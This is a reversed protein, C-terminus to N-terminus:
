KLELYYKQKLFDFFKQETSKSFDGVLMWKGNVNEFLYFSSEKSEITGDPQKEGIEFLYLALWKNNKEDYLINVTQRRLNVLDTHSYYEVGLSIDKGKLVCAQKIVGISEFSAYDPLEPESVTQSFALSSSLLIVAFISVRVLLNALRM